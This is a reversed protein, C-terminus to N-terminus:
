PPPPSSVDSEGRSTGRLLMKLAEVNEERVSRRRRDIPLGLRKAVEILMGAERLENLSFGRGARVIVRGDKLRRRVIPAAESAM